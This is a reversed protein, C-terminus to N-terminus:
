GRAYLGRRKERKPALIPKEQAQLIVAAGPPAPALSAEAASTAMPSSEVKDKDEAISNNSDGV